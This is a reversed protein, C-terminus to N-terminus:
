TKPLTENSPNKKQEEHLQKIEELTEARESFDTEDVSYLEIARTLASKAAAFKGQERCARALQRYDSAASHTIGSQEYIRAGERSNAAQRYWTEAAAWKHQRGYLDGLTAAIEATTNYAPGASATEIKSAELLAGEAKQYEGKQMYGIGLDRLIGARFESGNLRLESKNLTELCLKITQDYHREKLSDDALSLFDTTNLARHAILSEQTITPDDFAVLGTAKYIITACAQPYM